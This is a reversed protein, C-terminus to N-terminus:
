TSANCVYKRCPPPAVRSWPGGVINNDAPFPSTFKDEGGRHGGTPPSRQGQSNYSLFSLFFPFSLAGRLGSRSLPATVFISM